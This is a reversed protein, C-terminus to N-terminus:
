CDGYEKPQEEIEIPVFPDDGKREPHEYVGVVQECDAPIDCLVTIRSYESRSPVIGGSKRPLGRKVVRLARENDSIQRQARSEEIRETEPSNMEDHIPQLDRGDAVRSWDLGNNQCRSNSPDHVNSVESPM